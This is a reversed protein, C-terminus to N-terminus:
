IPWDKYLYGETGEIGDLAKKTNERVLYRLNECLERLTECLYVKVTWSGVTWSGLQSM